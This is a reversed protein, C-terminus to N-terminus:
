KLEEPVMLHRGGCEGLGGAQEGHEGSKQKEARVRTEGEFANGAHVERRVVAGGDEDGRLRFVEAVLAERIERKGLEAACMGMELAILGDVCSNSERAVEGCELLLQARDIGSEACEGVKSLVESGIAGAWVRQATSRM